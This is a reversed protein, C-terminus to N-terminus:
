GPIEEDEGTGFFGLLAKTIERRVEDQDYFRRAIRARAEQIRDHRVEEEEEVLRLLPRRDLSTKEDKSECSTRELPTFPLLKGDNRLHSSTM